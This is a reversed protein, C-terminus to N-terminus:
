AQDQKMIDTVEDDEIEIVVADGSQLDLLLDVPVRLIIVDDETVITLTEKVMDLDQVTGIVTETAALALTSIILFGTLTMARLLKGGM